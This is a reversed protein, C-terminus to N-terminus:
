VGLGSIDAEARILDVNAGVSAIRAREGVAEPGRAVLVCKVDFGSSRLDLACRLMDPDLAPTVLVVLAGWHWQEKERELTAVLDAAPGLQVRGLVSLIATLHDRDRGAAIQVVGAAEGAPDRGFVLLGARQRREQIHHAISATTTIALEALESAETPSGVYDTRRLNLLLMCEVQASVEFLKSQLRGTHATARWHIRRLGDGHQYPRIGILQTPDELIRHRARTEGVPRRSPLRTHTIPLVRPFVTLTASGAGARERQVLDFPDSVRLSVPGIRYYGRRAGHLTYRFGFSGRGALPGVRGRLGTMPLGAPLSEAAVLWPVPLQSLNAVTVEVTVAGGHAIRDVSMRRSATLGRQALLTLLAGTLWVSAMLAGVWHFAPTATAWGLAFALAALLLWLVPAVM